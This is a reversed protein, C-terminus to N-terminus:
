FINILIYFFYMKRRVVVDLDARPGVWRGICHTVPARERPTFRSWKRPTGPELGRFGGIRSTTKMTGETGRCSNQSSVESYAVVAEDVENVM